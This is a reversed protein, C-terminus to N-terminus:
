ESEPLPVVVPTLNAVKGLYRILDILKINLLVAWERIVAHHVRVIPLDEEVLTERKLEAWTRLMVYRATSDDCLAIVDIDVFQTQISEVRHIARQLLQTASHNLTRALEVLRVYAIGRHGLEWNLLTAVTVEFPLLEVLQPRTLGAAERARRVEGGLAVNIKDESLVWDAEPV